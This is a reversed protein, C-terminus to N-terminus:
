RCGGTWYRTGDHCGTATGRGDNPGVAGANWDAFGTSQNMNVVGNVHIPVVAPDVVGYAYGGPHCVGCSIAPWTTSVHLAHQGSSPPNGHCTGCRAQTGDVKTWIPQTWEGGTLTVGHCYNACTAAAPDFRAEAGNATAIPGWALTAPTTVAPGVHSLDTPVIHCESCAVPAALATVGPLLHAQHAGVGAQTSSSSGNRDVPPAAKVVAPTGPPLIRNPDGHCATCSTALDPAILNAVGNVHLQKNVSTNTYGPHCLGCQVGDAVAPHWPTPEGAGPASHCGGCAVVSPPNWVPRPVTGGGIELQPGGSHCYVNSCTLTAASFSGVAGNASALPGALTVQFQSNHCQFCDIPEAVTGTLHIAHAGTASGGGGDSATRADCAALDLSTLVLFIPLFSTFFSRRM